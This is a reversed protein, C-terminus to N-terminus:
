DPPRRIPCRCRNWLRGLFCSDICGDNTFKATCHRLGNMHNATYEQVYVKNDVVFMDLRMYVGIKDGLHVAIDIMEQWICDSLEPITECVYLENKVPGCRNKGTVFDIATCKTDDDILEVGGPEIVVLSTLGPGSPILLQTVPVVQVV